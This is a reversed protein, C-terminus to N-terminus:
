SSIYIIIKSFNSSIIEFSSNLFSVLFRFSIWGFRLHQPRDRYPVVVLVKEEPVCDSPMFCGNEDLNQSFEQSLIEETEYFKIDPEFKGLLQKYAANCSPLTQQIEPSQEQLPIAQLNNISSLSLLSFIGTKM